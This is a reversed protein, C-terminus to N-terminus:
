SFAWSSNICRLLHGLKTASFPASIKPFQAGTTSASSTFVRIFLRNEDGEPLAKCNLLAPKPVNVNDVEDEGYAMPMENLM